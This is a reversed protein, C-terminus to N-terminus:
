WSDSRDRARKGSANKDDQKSEESGDSANLLAAITIGGAIKMTTSSPLEELMSAATNNRVTEAATNALVLNDTRLYDVCTMLGIAESADKYQRGIQGDVFHVTGNHVEWAISHAGGCYYGGHIIGRAGEGQSLLVNVTNDIDEKSPKPSHLLNYIDESTPNDWNIEPRNNYLPKFKAGQFFAEVTENTRGEKTTGAVVDYGRRRMEYAMSCSTCNVQRGRLFTHGLMGERNIKRLDDNIQTDFDSAEMVKRKLQSDLNVNPNLQNSKVYRYTAYAAVAAVTLGVGVAVKKEISIRKEAAAEADKQNMGKARYKAILKDRHTKRSGDENYRKKGAETLTGDENRFRRVGWKMGKVGHHQLYSDSYHVAYMSNM